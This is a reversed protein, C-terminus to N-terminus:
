KRKGFQLSIYGNLLLPTAKQNAMLEVKSLYMEANVGTELAILTNKKSAFDFHLGTKGHIGPIIKLDDWGKSWGSGGIIYQKTLFPQKTEDSYKISEKALTGPNDQPVYADLYYPKQFGVAIGGLYVWHISITGPEPKGAILRRYGYGGKLSYFNNIKGFIFSKPKDDATRLYENTTKTEKVHKHESVEIQILRIDYFRDSNKTDEGLVKGLDVFASWGGTSLRGGVSWEKAIPKPKKPKILPTLTVAPKFSGSTKNTATDPIFTQATVDNITIFCCTLLTIARLLLM